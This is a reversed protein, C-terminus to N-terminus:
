PKPTPTVNQRTFIAQVAALAAAVLGLDLHGTKAGAVVAAVAVVAGSVAAPEVHLIFNWIAKVANM